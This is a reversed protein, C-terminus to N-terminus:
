RLYKNINSLHEEYTKAYRMVGNKDTLYFWYPTELPTITDIITALGPNSIPGKPLGKNLYTNYPSKIKLDASSFNGPKGTIYYFPADVQLAMGDKLRKWLIGAIIRRSEDAYAEKEVISAMNIVDSLPKGFSEIEERAEVIEEDFRARMTKIVEEPRVNALFYYTDPFLYGEHRLALSVFRPANFDNLRKMLIFATDYVNTGEPITVTITPQDQAGRVVRSAVTWVMQPKYFLYDGAQAGSQGGMLVVAVKFLFPSRIVRKELLDETLSNLSSNKPFSVTFAKQPFDEPARSVVGFLGLFIAVACVIIIYPLKAKRIRM